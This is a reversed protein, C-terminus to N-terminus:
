ANNYLDAIDQFTQANTRKINQAQYEPDVFKSANDLTLFGTSLMGKYGGLGGFNTIQSFFSFAEFLGANIRATYPTVNSVTTLEQGVEASVNLAKVVAPTFVPLLQESTYQGGSFAIGALVPDLLINNVLELGIRFEADNSVPLSNYYPDSFRDATIQTIIDADAGIGLIDDLNISGDLNSDGALTSFLANEIREIPTADPSEYPNDIYIISQLNALKVRESFDAIFNNAISEVLEATIEVGNGSLFELAQAMQSSALVDSQTLERDIVGTSQALAGRTIFNNGGSEVNAILPSANPDLVTPVSSTEELQDTVINLETTLNAIRATLNNYVGQVDTLDNPNLSTAVANLTQAAAKVASLWADFPGGRLTEKYEIGYGL